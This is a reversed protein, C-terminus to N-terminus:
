MLEVTMEKIQKERFSVCWKVSNVPEFHLASVAIHAQDSEGPAGTRKQGFIIGVSAAGSKSGTAKQRPSDGQDCDSIRIEKETADPELTYSM